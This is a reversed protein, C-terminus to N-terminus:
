ALGAGSRLWTLYLHFVFVGAYLLFAFTLLKRVRRFRVHVLLIGLGMLTTILKAWSFASHGGQDLVWAMVPNAETGGADLHVLTFVLDFISLVLVGCVLFLEGPSYRDVYINSREGARRGTRRRGFLWFRSLIRTPHDRRDGGSRRDAGPALRPEPSM